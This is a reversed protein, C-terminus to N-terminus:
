QQEHMSLSSQLRYNQHLEMRLNKPNVSTFGDAINFFLFPIPLFISAVIGSVSTTVEIPTESSAGRGDAVIKIKHMGLGGLDDASLKAPTVLGSDQNDVFIRAGQINSTVNVGSCGLLALICLNCIIYRM